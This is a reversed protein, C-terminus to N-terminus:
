GHDWFYVGVQGDAYVSFDMFNGQLTENLIMSYRLYKPDQFYNKEQNSGDIPILGDKGNMDKLAYCGGSLNKYVMRKFKHETNYYDYCYHATNQVSTVINSYDPYIVKSSPNDALALLIDVNDFGSQNLCKSLTPYIMWVVIRNETSKLCLSNILIREAKARVFTPSYHSSYFAQGSYDQLARVYDYSYYDRYPLASKTDVLRVIGGRLQQRLLNEIATVFPIEQSRVFEQYKTRQAQALPDNPYQHYAEVLLYLARQQAYAANIYYNFYGDLAEYCSQKGNMIIPAVMETYLQIVGKDVGNGILLNNIESMNVLAGDNTNLVEDVLRKVEQQSTTSPNQTYNIYTEYQANVKTIYEQLDNDRVEWSIYLEEEAIAKLEEQIIAMDTEIMNGIANVAKQVETLQASLGEIAELEKEDPGGFILNLAWGAAESGIEKAAGSALGTVIATGMAILIGAM